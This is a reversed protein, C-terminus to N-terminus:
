KLMYTGKGKPSNLDRVLDFAVEPSLSGPEINYGQRRLSNLDQVQGRPDMVLKLIPKNEDRFKMEQGHLVSDKNCAIHNEFEPHLTTNWHEKFKRERISSDCQTGLSATPQSVASHGSLDRTGNVIPTMPIKWQRLGELRDIARPEVWGTVSILVLFIEQPNPCGTHLASLREVKM